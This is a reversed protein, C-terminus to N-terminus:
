MVIIGRWLGGTLTPDAGTMKALEVSSKPDGNGEDLKEFLNMDIGVRVAAHHGQQTFGSM